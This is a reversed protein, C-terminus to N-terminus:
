EFHMCSLFKAVRTMFENLIEAILSQVFVHSAAPVVSHFKSAYIQKPNPPICNLDCQVSQTRPPLFSPFFASYAFVTGMGFAPLQM